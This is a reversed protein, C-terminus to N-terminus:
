DKAKKHSRRKLYVLAVIILAVGVATAVTIVLGNQPEKPAVAAEEVVHHHGAHAFIFM